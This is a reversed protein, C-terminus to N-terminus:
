VTKSCVGTTYALLCAPATKLWLRVNSNMPEAMLSSVPAAPAAEPSSLHSHPIRNLFRITGSLPSNLRPNTEYIGPFSHSTPASVHPPSSALIAPNNALIM